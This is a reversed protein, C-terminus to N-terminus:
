PTFTYLAGKGEVAGPAGALVVGGGFAIAAGFADGPATETAVLKAKQVFGEPKKEFVYVAGAKTKDFAENPAGVVVFSGAIAVAAGFHDKEGLDSAALKQTEAWTGDPGRTFVYAAGAEAAGADGERHDPAGVIALDGALAIAAGFRAGATPASPRFDGTRPWPTSADSGAPPRAYVHVKGAGSGFGPAGSLLFDGGYAIAAGAAGQPDPGYLNDDPTFSAGSGTMAYVVGMSTVESIGNFYGYGPAGAFATKADPALAVAFGCKHGERQTGSQKTFADEAPVGTAPVTAAFSAGVSYLTTVTTGSATFEKLSPAGVLLTGGALAVSAGFEEYQSVATPTTLGRHTWACGERALLHVTGTNATGAPEKGTPAGIAALTGDIAIAAGFSDGAGLAPVDVKALPCVIPPASTDGNTAGDSQPNGGDASACAVGVCPCDSGTCAAPKSGSDSSCGIFHLAFCVVASGLALSAALRLM